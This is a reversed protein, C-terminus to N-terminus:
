SHYNAIFEPGIVHLANAVTCLSILISFYDIALLELNCRSTISERSIFRHHCVICEVKREDANFIVSNGSILHCM